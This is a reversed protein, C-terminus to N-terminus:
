INALFAGAAVTQKLINHLGVASQGCTAFRFHFKHFSKLNFEEGRGDCHPAITRREVVVCLPPTNLICRCM